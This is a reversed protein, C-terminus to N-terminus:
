RPARRNVILAQVVRGIAGHEDHVVSEVMGLGQPQAVGKTELGVCEGVPLRVAAVLRPAVLVGVASRRSRSFVMCM